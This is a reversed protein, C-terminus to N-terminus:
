GPSPVNLGTLVQREHEHGLTSMTATDLRYRWAAAVPEDLWRATVARLSHGHAVLAVDGHDLAARARALVRDIRAGVDRPSEGGPCGDRFLDWGPDRTRIEATTLGEYDGYFWEALDDDIATVALGALEATHRARLRPSCLVAAFVRGALAPRLARSQRVGTETLPLDTVSTHQGSASWETQGHRVLVIEAM